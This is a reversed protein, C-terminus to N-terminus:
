CSTPAKDVLARDGARRLRKVYEKETEAMRIVDALTLRETRRREIERQESPTM